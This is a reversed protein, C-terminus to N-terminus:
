VISDSMWSLFLQKYHRGIPISKKHITISNQTFREIHHASVIYSRHVRLFYKEPLKEEIHSLSMLSIISETRTVLKVHNKISEIYLLDKLLIKIYERESKVYIFPASFFSREKQVPIEPAIFQKQMNKYVKTIGKTFREFTIPKLLYDTIELEYGELAFERHATTLIVAPYNKLSNLLQIGSMKPLQIDLFLIDYHTKQLESIADIANNHVSEIKLDSFHSIYNELVKVAPLEDEVIMCNM